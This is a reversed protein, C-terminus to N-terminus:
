NVSFRLHKNWIRKIIKNKKSPVNFPLTSCKPVTSFFSLLNARFYHAFFEHM